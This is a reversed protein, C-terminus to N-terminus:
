IRELEKERIWGKNGDLLKIEYWEGIKDMLQVKTGEHLLFLNTGSEDPSGKITVSPTMVIACSHETQVKMQKHSYNLSFVMVFLSIASLWFSFRGLLAARNFFYILFALLALVFSGFGIYAWKNSSFIKQINNRWSTLFFIPLTEIRDVVHLRALELNYEIDEDKTKLLKAREYNLIAKSIDDVKYYANGLNFYIEASEYGLKLISDYMTIADDFKEQSYYDNALDFLEQNNDAHVVQYSGFFLLISLVISSKM